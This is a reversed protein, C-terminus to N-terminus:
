VVGAMRRQNSRRGERRALLTQYPVENRSRDQSQQSLVEAGVGEAITRTPSANPTSHHLHRWLHRLFDPIHDGSLQFTNALERCNPCLALMGAIDSAGPCIQHIELTVEDGRRDCGRCRYRDRRVVKMRQGSWSLPSDIVLSPRKGQSGRRLRQLLGFMQAAQRFRITFEMVPGSLSAIAQRCSGAQKVAFNRPPVGFPIVPEVTRVNRRDLFSFGM